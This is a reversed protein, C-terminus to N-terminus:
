AATRGTNVAELYARHLDPNGVAVARIADPRDMGEAVKEKVASEFGAIPDGADDGSATGDETGLGDTGTASAVRAKGEVKEKLEANEAKLQDIEDDRIRVRESLTELWARQAQETTAKRSLQDCIFTEDAGPCGAVVDQYSAPQPTETRETTREDTMRSEGQSQTANNRASSRRRGRRMGAITQELSQVGDILGLDRAEQALFVRGDAISRVSAQSLKRGRAVAAVFQEGLADVMRQMEALQEGTIETGPVGTGKFAGSKVVHVKVGMQAARSSFDEVVSFVGISGVQTTQTGAFVQDAQSAVWFAASAGRDEIVAQIPKSRSAARIEDALAETGSVTGGPSDILLAIGAVSDDAAAERIMRRAQVTSVNRSLSSVQKMLTGSLPIVAVGDVVDFSRNAASRAASRQQAVHAEVDLARVHEVMALFPKEQVAWVGFYEELYPVSLGADFEITITNANEGPM